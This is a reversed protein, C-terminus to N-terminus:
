PSPKPEMLEPGDSLRNGVAADVEHFAWFDEAPPIMLRAAGKGAEGLWLPWDEQRVALPARHHIASLANSADTTVIACSQVPGDPGQWERWVGAFAVLPLNSGDKGAGQVWFPTKEKGERRWEYFGSAPILCRQSRVAEAFAPKSAITESRANIILPGGNMAKYWHPIFGWRMATLHRLGGDSRVVHVDQTPCINYRPTDPLAGQPEAEFIQTMAEHPLTLAYRGCM